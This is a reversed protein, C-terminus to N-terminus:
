NTVGRYFRARVGATNTDTFNWYGNSTSNTLVSIWTSLDTSTQLIYSAGAPGILQMQFAGGSLSPTGMRLPSDILLIAPASTVAGLSNSVVVVYSGQLFSQFDNFSLTSGSALLPAGNLFWEYGPPPAGTATVSLSTNGGTPVTHSVPQATIAPVADVTLTAVSSTVAGAVNAVICAYNGSSAIQVNTLVLSSNTGAAIPAGSALWQFALDLGSAQCSFTVNSGAIVTLNSPGGTLIPPAVVEVIASTNTVSVMNSVIVTYTGAQGSLMNSLTLTNNTANALNKGNFQWFYSTPTSGTAGVILTANSGASVAQNEPPTNIAIPNGLGVNLRV